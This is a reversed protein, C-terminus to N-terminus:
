PCGSEVFMNHEAFAACFISWEAEAQQETGPQPLGLLEALNGSHPSDCFEIGDGGLTAVAWQGFLVRARALGASSGYYSKLANSIRVWPGSLLQGAAHEECNCYTQHNSGAPYDCDIYTETPDDRINGGGIKHERGQVTDDNLLNGFTDGFGEHFGSFYINFSGHLMFLAVHGYEHAFSSHSGNNWQGCSTNKPSLAISYSVVGNSAHGNCPNAYTEHNPYIYLPNALSSHTDSIYTMFFSRCRNAALVTDVQAVRFEESMNGNSLTLPENDGVVTQASASLWEHPVNPDSETRVIYWQGRGAFSASLDITQNTSGFTLSFQGSANTLTHALNENIVGEVRLGPITQSVLNGSDDRYPHWPAGIPRGPASVSGTTPPDFNAFHEQRWIIRPSVTDVFFTRRSAMPGKGQRTRVRWVWADPRRNSGLLVVVEPPSEITLNEFGSQTQVIMRAAESPMVPYESGSTPTGALRAAAFTVRNLTGRKVVVRIDSGEVERGHYLQQYGYAVFSGDMAPLSWSERLELDGSHEAARLAESHTALFGAAAQAESMGPTM